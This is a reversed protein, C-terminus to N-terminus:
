LDARLLRPQCRDFFRLASEAALACFEAGFVCDRQVLSLCVDVFVLADAAGFADGDAPEIGDLVVETGLRFNELFVKGFM